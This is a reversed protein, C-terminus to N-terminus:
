ATRRRRVSTMTAGLALLGFGILGVLPLSSATKPLKKPAPAAATTSAAPAAATKAPPPPNSPRTTTAAPKPTTAAAPKAAPAAATGGGQQELRATVQQETLVEDKTTVFTGSVIDNARLQQFDVPKGGKTIQVKYKDADEQTFLKFKGDQSRLIVSNGFAQMVKASKEETVHVTTVTTLTTTTATGKMGVKLDHVSLQKGDVTFRFTDPVTYEKTGDPGRVVLENGVVSIVEFPKTSSTSTTQAAANASWLALVGFLAIAITSRSAKM